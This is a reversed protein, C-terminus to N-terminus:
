KDILSPTFVIQGKGKYRKQIQERFAEDDTANNVIVFLRDGPPVTPNDETFGDTIYITVRPKIKLNQLLAAVSSMNTGGSVTSMKKFTGELAGKSTLPPSIYYAKDHWLLIRVNLNTAIAAMQKAYNAAQSLEETGISGSTDLAFIADLKLNTQTKGPAQYGGALGRYSPKLWTKASSNAGTLYRKIVGRWDVNVPISKSILGRIGGVGSGRQASARRKAEETGAAIDQRREQELQKIEEPTLAQEVDKKVKAAEEDTLHKDTKNDLEKFFDEWTGAGQGQGQGPEKGQGKGQAQGKGQGQDQGQGQGQGKGQGQNKGQPGQGQNGPKPPPPPQTKTVKVLQNYIDESSLPYGKQDLVKIIAPPNTPIEFEGTQVDPRIGDKPLQFGDRALAWNMQADTAVNWIYPDRDGKRLFTGNAIHLAEHAFVGYFEQNSLKNSWSPNIYINGRDDVAMTQIDKNESNVINVKLKSLIRGLYPAKEYLIIKGLGIKTELEEVKKLEEPNNLKDAAPEDKSPTTSHYVGELYLKQLKSINM